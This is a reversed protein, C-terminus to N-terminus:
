GPPHSCVRQQVSSVTEAVASSTQRYSAISCDQMLSVPLCVCQWCIHLVFTHLNNKSQASDILNDGAAALKLRGAVDGARAADFVARSANRQTASATAGEIQSQQTAGFVDEHYRGQASM